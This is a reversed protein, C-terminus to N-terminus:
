PIFEQFVRETAGSVATISGPAVLMTSNGSTGYVWGNYFVEKDILAPYNHFLDSKFAVNPNYGGWEQPRLMLQRGEMAPNVQNYADETTVSYRVNDNGTPVDPRLQGPLADPEPAVPAATQAQTVPTNKISFAGRGPAIASGTWVNNGQLYSSVGGTVGGFAAGGLAGSVAGNLGARFMEGADGGALGTNGYGLLFGSSAGGAAGALMGGLVGGTIGTGAALGLAAGGTVMGVAGAAGGVAAYGLGALWPNGSSRIEDWHTAVNVVAGIAAAIAIWAFEGRADVYVLSNNLAYTYRNLGQTISGLHDRCIYVIKWEGGVKM